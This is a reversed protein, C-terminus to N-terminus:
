LKPLLFVTVYPLYIVPWQHRRHTEGTGSKYPTGAIKGYPATIPNGNMQCSKHLVRAPSSRAPDCWMNGGLFGGWFRDPGSLAFMYSFLLLGVHWVLVCLCVSVIGFGVYELPLCWFHNTQSIYSMQITKAEKSFMRPNWKDSVFSGIRYIRNATAIYFCVNHLSKM